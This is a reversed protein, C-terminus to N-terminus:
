LLTWSEFIAEAANELSVVNWLASKMELYFGWINQFTLRNKKRQPLVIGLQVQTFMYGPSDM